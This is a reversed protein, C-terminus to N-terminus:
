RKIVSTFGREDRDGGWVEWDEGWPTGRTLCYIGRGPDRVMLGHTDLSRDRTFGYVGRSFGDNFSRM